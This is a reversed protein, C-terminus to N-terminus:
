SKQSVRTTLMLIKMVIEKEYLLPLASPPAVPLESVRPTAARATPARPARAGAPAAGATRLGRNGCRCRVVARPGAAAARAGAGRRGAAAARAGARRCASCRRRSPVATRVHAPREYTM